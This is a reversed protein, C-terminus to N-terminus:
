QLPEDPIGTAALEAPTKSRGDLHRGPGELTRKAAM